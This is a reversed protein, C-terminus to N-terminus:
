PGSLPRHHIALLQTGGEILLGSAGLHAPHRKVGLGGGGADM